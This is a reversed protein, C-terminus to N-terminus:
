HKLMLDRTKPWPIKHVILFDTFYQAVLSDPMSVLLQSIINERDSQEKAFELPLVVGFKKANETLKDIINSSADAQSLRFM